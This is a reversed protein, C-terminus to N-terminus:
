RNLHKLHLVGFDGGIDRERLSKEYNKLITALKGMVDATEVSKKTEMARVLKRTDKNHISKRSNPDAFYLDLGDYDTPKVM